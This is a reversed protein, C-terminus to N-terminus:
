RNQHIALENFNSEADLDEPCLHMMDLFRANHLRISLDRDMLVTSHPLAEIIQSMRNRETEAQKRATELSTIDVHTLMIGEDIQIAKALFVQDRGSGTPDTKYRKHAEGSYLVKQRAKLLHARLEIEQDPAFQTMYAGRRWLRVLLEEFHPKDALDEASMDVFDLFKDNYQVVSLAHDLLVASHPLAEFIQSIRNREAEALRRTAESEVNAMAQDTMDIHSFVRHPGCLSRTVRYVRGRVKMDTFTFDDQRFMKLFEELFVRFEAETSVGKTPPFRDTLFLNTLFEMMTPRDQLEAPDCQWLQLCLDNSFVIRDNQDVVFIPQQILQLINRFDVEDCVTADAAAHTEPAGAEPHGNSPPTEM